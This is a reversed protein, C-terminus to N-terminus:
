NNKETYLSHFAAFKSDSEIGPTKGIFSCQISIISKLGKTVVHRLNTPRHMAMTNQKKVFTISKERRCSASFNAPLKDNSFLLTKCYTIRSIDAKIQSNYIRTKRVQM